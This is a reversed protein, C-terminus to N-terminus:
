PPPASQPGAPAAPSHAGRKLRLALGSAWAFRWLWSVLNAAAAGELGFRPILAVTLLAHVALSVVGVGLFFRLAPEPARVGLWASPVVYAVQVIGALALLGFLLRFDGTYRGAYLWEVLPTGFLTLVLGGGGGAVVLLVLLRTLRLSEGSAIRPSVVQAVGLGLIGYGTLAINAVAAYRGLAATDVLGALLFADLRLLLTSTLFLGFFLAGERLLKGTPLPADGRPLPRLAPGLLLLQVIGTIFFVGLVATAELRGGAVLLLAAGLLLPRGVAPLLQATVFRRDITLLAGAGIAMSFGFSAGAVLVAELAGFRYVFALFCGALAAVVAAQLAVRRGAAPWAVTALRERPISRVLATHLGFLGLYGALNVVKNALDVRGFDSATLTRGLLLTALLFLLQAGGNVLSVAGIQRFLGAGSRGDTV